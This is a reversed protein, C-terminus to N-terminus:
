CRCLRLRAARAAAAVAPSVGGVMTPAMKEALLAGFASKYGKPMTYDTDLDAFDAM